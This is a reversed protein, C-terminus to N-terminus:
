LYLNLEYCTSFCDTVFGNNGTGCKWYLTRQLQIHFITDLLKMTYKKDYDVFALCFHALKLIRTGDLFFAEVVTLNRFPLDRMEPDTGLIVSKMSLAINQYVKDKKDAEKLCLVRLLSTARISALHALTHAQQMRVVHDLKSNIAALGQFVANTARVTRDATKDGPMPELPPFSFDCMTFGDNRLQQPVCAILLEEEHTIPHKARGGDDDDQDQENLADLIPGDTIGNAVMLEMVHKAIKKAAKEYLEDINQYRRTVSPRDVGEKSRTDTIAERASKGRKDLMKKKKKLDRALKDLEEEKKAQKKFAHLDEQAKRVAREYATKAEERDCARNCLEDDSESDSPSSDESPIIIPDNDVLKPTTIEAM